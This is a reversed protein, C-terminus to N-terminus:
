NPWRPRRTWRRMACCTPPSPPMSATMPSRCPTSAAGRSPARRIQEARGAAATADWELGFRILDPRRTRLTALFGGTGCGADLVRGAVDALADCLRTHLARYWWM